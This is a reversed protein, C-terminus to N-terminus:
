SGSIAHDSSPEWVVTCVNCVLANLVSSGATTEEYSLALVSGCDPCLPTLVYDFDGSTIAARHVLTDIDTWEDFPITRTEYGEISQDESSTVM